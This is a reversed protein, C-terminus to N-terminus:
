QFCVLNNACPVDTRVELVVPLISVDIQSEIKGLLNLAM